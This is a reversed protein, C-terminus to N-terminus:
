SNTQSLRFPERSFAQTPTAGADLRKYVTSRSRGLEECWETVSQTRGRYTILRCNRNNRSQQLPTAWRCNGPAYDGDNDIRDLSHRKSPRLGVDVVFCEFGSLDGDGEMWRECVGIGRGGYHHYARHNENLCRQRLQHYAVYEPWRRIQSPRSECLADYRARPNELVRELPVYVTPM